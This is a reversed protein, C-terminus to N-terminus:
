IGYTHLLQFCRLEFVGPLVLNGNESSIALGTSLRSDEYVVLNISVLHLFWANARPKWGANVLWKLNGSKSL